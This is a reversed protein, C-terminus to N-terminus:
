PWSARSLPGDGWAPQPQAPKAAPLLKEMIRVQEAGVLHGDETLCSPMQERCELFTRPSEDNMARLAM